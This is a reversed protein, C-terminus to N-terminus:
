SGLLGGLIAGAGVAAGASAAGGSGSTPIIGLIYSQFAKPNRTQIYVEGPGTFAFVLGEGTAASQATRAMFGKNQVAQQLAMQINKSYAVVHGNDVIYREGSKITKKQFAGFASIFLLGSGSVQLMALGEGGAINKFGAFKTDVNVSSTAALFSGADIIYDTSGNLEVATIDGPLTPAFCVEGAGRTATVTGVFMSEGGVVSKAAASFMRGLMGKKEDNANLSAELDLTDSMSVMAGAEFRLKEGQNLQVTAMTYSPQNQLEYRM